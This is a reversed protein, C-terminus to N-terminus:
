GVVCVVVGGVVCGIFVGVVFVVCECVVVVSFINISSVGAVAGVRWVGGSDVDWVLTLSFKSISKRSIGSFSDLGVVISVVVVNGNCGVFGVQAVGGGGWGMVTCGSCMSKSASFALMRAPKIRSVIVRRISIGVVVGIGIICSVVGLVLTIVAFVISLSGARDVTMPGVKRSGWCSGSRVGAAAVAPSQTKGGVSRVVCVVIGVVTNVSIVSFVFIPSVGAAVEV